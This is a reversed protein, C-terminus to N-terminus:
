LREKIKSYIYTRDSRNLIAFYNFGLGIISTIISVAFLYVWSEGEFLLRILYGASSIIIISGISKIIEPYFTYWKQGIYIAGFPVTYLLNRIISLISSVGAVAILGWNTTVLLIYVILVNLLGTATVLLSNVKIRNIITFINHIITAQGMVAWPLVTLISLLQLQNADQQPFWVRFLIDGFVVLLAIPINVIMGMIKMSQKTTKTLEAYEQKAYLETMSPLFTGIMTYLITNILRPIIKSIALIGMAEAGIMLNAILLDIGQSLMAGLRTVTNWIGSSILEKIKLIDFFEKRIKLNPILKRKWYLNVIQTLITIVLTVFGIYAVHPKFILYFALLMGGRLVQGVVQTLSAIYLKNSIYYSVSLNTSLITVIFNGLMFMVLYKVDVVIAAPINIINELNLILGLFIPTAVISFFLNSYFTSTFYKSSAEFDKKFYAISVFRSSMSNLAVMLITIYSILEYSLQVFGYSEVGVVSVLYPSLFFNIGMTVFLTLFSSLLNIILQKNKGITNKKDM